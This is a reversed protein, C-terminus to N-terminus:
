LDSLIAELKVSEPLDLKKRIRYRTKKVSDPLIGLITAIEKGSLNLKMLLCLREEADSLLPYLNRLRNIYGPFANQFSGKFAQWDDDTLIRLDYLNDGFERSGAEESYIVSGHSFKENLLALQENKKLLVNTLQNLNRQNQLLERKVMTTQIRWRWLGFGVLLLLSLIVLISRELSRRTQLYATSSKELELEKQQSEYQVELEAIKQNTETGAISDLLEYYKGLYEYALRYDEREKHLAVLGSYNAILNETIHHEQNMLLCRHYTESALDFRKQRRFADALNNLAKSEEKHKNLRHYIDISKEFYPIAETARDQLSNVIGFNNLAAGLQELGGYKEILPMSIEHYYQAKEFNDLKANMVSLQELSEALCLSDRGQACLTAALEYEQVAKQYDKLRTAVVGKRHVVWGVWGPHDAQEAIAQAKLLYRTAESYNLNTAYDQALYLYGYLESIRDGSRIAPELFDQHIKIKAEFGLSSNKPVPDASEIGMRFNEQASVVTIKLLVFIILFGILKFELFFKARIM